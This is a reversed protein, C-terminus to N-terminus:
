SFHSDREGKGGSKEAIRGSVGRKGGIKTGKRWKKRKEWWKKGKGVM